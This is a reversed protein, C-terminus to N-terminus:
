MKRRTQFSARPTYTGTASCALARRLRALPDAAANVAANSIDPGANAASRGVPPLTTAPAPDILWFPEAIVMLWCVPLIATSQCLKEMPLPLLTVNLWGPRSETANFRTSPGSTDTIWPASFALPWTNRTLGFPTTNVGVACTFTPPMTALVSLM